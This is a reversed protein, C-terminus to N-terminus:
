AVLTPSSEHADHWVSEGIAVPLCALVPFSIKGKDGVAFGLRNVSAAFASFHNLRLQLSTKLRAQVAWSFPSKM